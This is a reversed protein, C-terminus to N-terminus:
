DRRRIMQEFKNHLAELSDQYFVQYGEVKAFGMISYQDDANPEPDCIENAPICEAPFSNPCGTVNLSNQFSWAEYSYEDCLGFTHGLEHATIASYRAEGVAGLFDEGMTWGAVWYDGDLSLDMNTLGMYRDAPTKLLGFEIIDLVLSAEGWSSSILKESIIVQRVDFYDDILQLDEIIICMDIYSDTFQDSIYKDIQKVTTVPLHKIIEYRIENPLLAIMEQEIIHSLIEM